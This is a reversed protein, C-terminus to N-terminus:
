THVPQWVEIRREGELLEPLAAHWDQRYPRHIQVNVVDEHDTWVEHLLFRSPDGPDEHLTASCYTAEQKMADLVDALLSLFRGRQDERVQFEILYAVSM